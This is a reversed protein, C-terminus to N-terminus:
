VLDGKPTEYISTENFSIKDDQAVPCSYEWTKGKDESILLYNSTKRINSPDTGGAVVWFLRGDKGEWLAGRNYAPLPDGMATYKIEPPINPPYAPGQWTNGGDTSRLYYGGLFVSGEINEFYPKQLNEMGEPRVFAWGYSTC